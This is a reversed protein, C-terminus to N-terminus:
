VHCIIPRPDEKSIETNVYCGRCPQGPKTCVTANAPSFGMLATLLGTALVLRITKM